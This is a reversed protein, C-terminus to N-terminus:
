ATTIEEGILVTGWCYTSIVGGASTVEVDYYYSGVQWTIPSFTDISFKGTAPTTITIGSSSTISKVVSGGKNNFRFKIAISGGTLDVGTFTFNVVKFSDGKIRNKLNKRQITAM